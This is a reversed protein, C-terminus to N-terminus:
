QIFLAGDKSTTDSDLPEADKDVCAYDKNSHGTYEPMRYDTYKAKWGSYCAQKGSIIFYYMHNSKNNSRMRSCNNVFNNTALIIFLLTLHTYIKTYAHTM